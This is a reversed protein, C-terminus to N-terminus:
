REEALARHMAELSHTVQRYWDVDPRQLLALRTPAAALQPAANRAEVERVIDNLRATVDAVRQLNIDEFM